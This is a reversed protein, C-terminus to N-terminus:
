DMTIPIRNNYTGKQSCKLLYNKIKYGVKYSSKITIKTKHQYKNLYVAFSNYSIYKVNNNNRDINIFYPMTYNWDQSICKDIDGFLVGDEVTIYDVHKIPKNNCGVLFILFLSLTFIVLSRM